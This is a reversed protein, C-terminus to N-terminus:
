AQEQRRGPVGAAPTSGTSLAATEDAASWALRLAPAWREEGVLMHKGFAARLDQLDTACAFVLTDGPRCRQRATRLADAARLHVVPAAGAAQAGAALVLATEGPPRGRDEDLEYLVLEDFGQGCLRGVQQLEADRRDGPASVVGVLRGPGLGRCTALLALYAAENHAYDVVVRLDGLQFLNLRLPNHETSCSFSCLAPAIDAPALGLALLAAVAALANAVNHRARGKLTFPLRDARVLARQGQPGEFVIEGERLLVARGGARLHARLAPHEPDMSFLFTEVGERLREAMAMCRADEANLVATRRAADAVV